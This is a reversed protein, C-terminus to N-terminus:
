ILSWRGATLKTVMRVRDREMCGYVMKGVEAAGEVQEVRSVKVMM